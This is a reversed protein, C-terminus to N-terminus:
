TFVSLFAENLKRDHYFIAPGLEDDTWTITPKDPYYIYGGSFVENSVLTSAPGGASEGSPCLSAKVAVLWSPLRCNHTLRSSERTACGIAPASPAEYGNQDGSLRM